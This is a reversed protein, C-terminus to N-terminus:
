TAPSTTTSEKVEIPSLIHGEEELRKRVSSYMQIAQDMAEQQSNGFVHVTVRAGKASQEIKVSHSFQTPFETQVDGSM